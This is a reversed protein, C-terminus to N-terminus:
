LVGSVLLASIEVVTNRFRDEPFRSPLDRMARTAHAAQAGDLPSNQQKSAYIVNGLAVLARYVSESDSKEEELVRFILSVHLARGASDLPTFLTVCSVNVLMTALPKRQSPTLEAYPAEAVAKLMEGLWPGEAAASGEQMANALARLLLMINMEAPKGGTSKSWPTSWQAAKFLGAFVREKVGPAKVAEPSYALVLRALDLVPLRLSVPWRELVQVIAEVHASGLASTPRKGAACKQVYAFAEDIARDEEPYLALSSTSIEHQLGDNFQHLKMRMQVLNGEKLLVPQLNPLIGPAKAAPAQPAGSYRSAGTYPDMYSSAPAQAQAPPAGTYRSAGTYPDMYSSAPAAAPAPASAQYRSAGTYPDVYQEGGGAGLTQGPTSKYIFEVITNIHGPPLGNRELFRQAAAHPNESVNYPLKHSPAGDDLAVDWVYDYEQGEFMKASAKAQGTIEGLRQWAFGDWQHAEAVDGNLVTKVDGAKKGPSNLADMGLLKQRDVPEVEHAALAQQAIGDEYAKLEAAPAWRAEAASFVRVNRDSAGSVIDGNPLVAVSWVSIAPHALVQACEGDKWIRVTRDEGASVLDGGPLVALRYVFSTHGTLTHVLEGGLTWVRIENDACSAFGIDPLLALARVVANHGTFTNLVKHQKWLKITKDASATIFEDEAVALADWVTNEHGKLEYACNWNKWVRATSDWSSSIITGEPTTRLSCVNNTHGLLTYDPDDKTPELSFVNIVGNQDGTVAYGKPADATPPVYAVANVYRTSARFVSESAFATDAARWVIATSDRSASLILDDAPAYVAKVDSTHASLTASLKYPM